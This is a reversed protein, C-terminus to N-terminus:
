SHGKKNIIGESRSRLTDHQVINELQGLRSSPESTGANEDSMATGKAPVEGEKSAPRFQWLVFGLAGYVIAIKGILAYLVADPHHQQLYHAVDQYLLSSIGAFLLVAVARFLRAKYKGLFFLVSSYKFIRFLSM